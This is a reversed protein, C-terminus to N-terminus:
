VKSDDSKTRRKYEGRRFTANGFTSRKNTDDNVKGSLCAWIEEPITNNVEVDAKQLGRVEEVQKALNLAYDPQTKFLVCCM